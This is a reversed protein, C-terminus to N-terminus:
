DQFWLKATGGKKNRQWEFSWNVLAHDLIYDLFQCADLIEFITSTQGYIISCDMYLHLKELSAKDPVGDWEIQLCDGELMLIDPSDPHVLQIKRIPLEKEQAINTLWYCLTDIQMSVSPYDEIEMAMGRTEIAEDVIIM